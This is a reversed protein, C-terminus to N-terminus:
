KLLQSGGSSYIISGESQIQTRTPEFSWPIFAM